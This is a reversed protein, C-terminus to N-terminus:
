MFRHSRLMAVILRSIASGFNLLIIVCCWVTVDVAHYEVNPVYYMHPGYVVDSLDITM